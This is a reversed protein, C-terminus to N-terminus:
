ENRFDDQWMWITETSPSGKAPQTTRSVCGSLLTVLTIIGLCLKIQKGIRQNSSIEATWSVSQVQEITLHNIPPIM